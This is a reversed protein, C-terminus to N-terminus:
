EYASIFPLPTVYPINMSRLTPQIFEAHRWALILCLGAGRCTDPDRVQIGTGPAFLGQRKVNDDVIWDITEALGMYNILVTSTASAGYAVIPPKAKRLRKILETRISKLYDQLMRWTTASHVGALRERYKWYAASGDAKHAGQQGILLRYSGGKTPVHKVAFLEMGSLNCLASFSTVTHYFYHEHYVYDFIASQLLALTSQVEVILVGKQHLLERCLSLLSTLAPIHSLCNNAVIASFSNKPLHNTTASNFFDNIIHINPNEIFATQPSPDVAVLNTCGATALEDLLIGDNAGIELISEHGGGTISVIFHAYEAFHALLDPSSSSEYIYDLYIQSTDPPNEIQITKCLNCQRLRISHRPVRMASELDTCYSDVFPLDPIDFLSEGLAEGCALCIQRM